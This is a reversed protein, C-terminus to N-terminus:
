VSNLGTELFSEFYIPCPYPSEETIFYFVKLSMRLKTFHDACFDEIVIFTTTALAIAKVDHYAVHIYRPNVRTAGIFVIKQSLIAEAYLLKM